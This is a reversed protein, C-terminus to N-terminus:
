PVDPAHCTWRWKAPPAHAPPTADPAPNTWPPKAPQLHHCWRNPLPPATLPPKRPPPPPIRPNDTWIKPPVPPPRYSCWLPQHGFKPCPCHPRPPKPAVRRPPSNADRLWCRRTVRHGMPPTTGNTIIPTRRPPPVTATM